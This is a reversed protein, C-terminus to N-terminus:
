RLPIEHKEFHLEAMTIVEMTKETCNILGKNLSNELLDLSLKSDKILVKKDLHFDSKEILEIYVLNEMLRSSIRNQEMLQLFIVGIVSASIFGTLYFGIYKFWKKM